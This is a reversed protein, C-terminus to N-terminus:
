ITIESLFRCFFVRERKEGLYQAMNKEQVKVVQAEEAQVQETWYSRRSVKSQQVEQVEITHCIRFLATGLQVAQVQILQCIRGPVTGHQVAQVQVTWCSRWLVTGHDLAVELGPLRGGRDPQVSLPNCVGVSMHFFAHSFTKLSKLEHWEVRNERERQGAM